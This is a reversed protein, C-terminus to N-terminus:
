PVVILASNGSSLVPAVHAASVASHPAARLDLDQTRPRRFAVWRPVGAMAITKTIALTNPDILLVSDGSVVIHTGDPSLMTFFLSANPFAQSIVRQGSVFDLVEMM